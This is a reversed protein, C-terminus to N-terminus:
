FGIKNAVISAKYVSGATAAAVSNVSITAPAPLNIRIRYEGLGNGGATGPVPNMIKGIVTAGIKFSMNDAELAAVTTGAIFTTCEVEYTGAPLAVISAIIADAGPASVSSTAGSTSSTTAEVGVAARSVNIAGSLAANGTILRQYYQYMYDNLSDAM